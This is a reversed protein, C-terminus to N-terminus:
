CGGSGGNPQNPISPDVVELHVHPWSPAATLEDVQSEFPLPTPGAAIVTQGAAVRDGARVTVGNIHLLKVEWGPHQDPEIVAFDDSYRCYLTYTGARKVTGTVPSRIEAAPDAVIDAASREGSLRGRTELVLPSVATTLVDLQRAGEHNSQHFGILEVRSSPHHLTIGGVTAFPVWAQEQVARPPPSTPAPSTTPAATTPAPAATTSPVESTTPAAVTRRADPVDGTDATDSAAASCASLTALALAAALTRRLPTLM